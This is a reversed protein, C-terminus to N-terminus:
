GTDSAHIQNTLLVSYVNEFLFQITYTPFFHYSIIRKEFDLQSMTKIDDLDYIQDFFKKQFKIAINAIAGSFRFSNDLSKNWIGRINRVVVKRQYIDQKYDGFVIWETDEHIFYTAIIDLWEQQYDQIEDILVVDFKQIQSKVNEFFSTDQWASLTRIDLNYNNAQAKFFQHYNTIYFNSWFFKERVDSIRDHIYNKLSLNYTLVLVRSGTRIHANVARKALVLTKGSGAVGEIKRRPIIESRILEQQEKTYNIAIGEEVQHVPAKLYRLFSNYLTDDFFKSQRNLWFKFLVSEIKHKNLSNKGFLAFYSVFKRYSNFSESQFDNLLFDTLEKEAGNLYPQFYIEYTDDLTDLLFNLLASEGETPKVKQRNIVEISPNLIAM